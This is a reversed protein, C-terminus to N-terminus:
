KLTAIVILLFVLFLPVACVDLSQALFRLRPRNAASALEKAALSVLLTLVGTLGLFFPVKAGIISSAVGAINIGICSM